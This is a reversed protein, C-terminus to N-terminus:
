SYIRYVCWYSLVVDTNGPAHVWHARRSVSESPILFYRFAGPIGVLLKEESTSLRSVLDELLPVQLVDGGRGKCTRTMEVSGKLPSFLREHGACFIIKLEPM